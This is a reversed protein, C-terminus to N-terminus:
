SGDKDVLPRCAVPDALPVAVEIPQLRKGQFVAMGLALLMLGTSVYYVNRLGMTFASAIGVTAGEAIVDLRPEFGLSAM